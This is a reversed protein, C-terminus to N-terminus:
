VSPLPSFCGTASLLVLSPRALFRRTSISTTPVRALLHDISDNRLFVGGRRPKKIGDFESLLTLTGASIRRMARKMIAAHCFVHIGIRRFQGLKRFQGMAPPIQVAFEARQMFDIRQAQFPDVTNRGNRLCRTSSMPQPPPMRASEIARLPASTSPMSRALLASLTALSCASSAPVFPTLYRSILASASAASCGPLKSTTVQM